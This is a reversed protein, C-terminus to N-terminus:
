VALVRLLRLGGGGVIFWDWIRGRLTIKINLILFGDGM